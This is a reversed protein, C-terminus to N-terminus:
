LAINISVSGQYITLPQPQRASPAPANPRPSGGPYQITLVKAFQVPQVNVETKIGWNPPTTNSNIYGGDHIKLNVSAVVNSNPGPIGAVTVSEVSVIDNPG